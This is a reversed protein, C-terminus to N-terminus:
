PDEPAPTHSGSAASSTHLPVILYAHYPSRRFIFPAGISAATKPDIGLQANTADLAYFMLHPDFSRKLIAGTTSDVATVDGALMYAIGFRRPPSLRGDHFRAEIDQRVVAVAAGAALLEGIRLVMPVITQVGEADYCTPKLAEYDDLFSDRNVLCAFGNSGRSALEYGASTFVYVSASDSVAPPAASRALAIEVKRSLPRAIWPGPHQGHVATQPLSVLLGAAVCRRVARISLKM